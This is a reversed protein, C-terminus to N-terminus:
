GHTSNDKTAHVVGHQSPDLPTHVKIAKAGFTTTPNAKIAVIRLNAKLGISRTNLM